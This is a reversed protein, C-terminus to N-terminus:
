HNQKKNEIYNKLFDIENQISIRIWIFKPDFTQSSLYFLKKELESIKRQVQTITAPTYGLKSCNKSSKTMYYYECIICYEVCDASSVEKAM